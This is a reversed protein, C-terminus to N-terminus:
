VIKRVNFFKTLIWPGQAFGLSLQWAGVGLLRYETILKNKEAISRSDEFWVVHSQGTQDVYNFFPSQSEESYQIPVGHSIALEVANQNSIASALIDKDYPLKWDYGYLPIGLLIKNRKVNKLAFEITKRVQDIPAVPGPVSGMHHWDYAMILMFDVVSGIAGYDYGRLWSIDESTKPPIAITLLLEQRDLQDKLESLFTSFLDRDEALIREFDINVGAYGRTSVMNYINKILTQRSSPNNLMQHTLESSFGSTTLNTITVLPATDRRWATEIGELDNLQSLSGDDLFRYEFFSFYTAYPSFNQILDQDAQTGTIYIYGLTSATYDPMEPIVVEMGPELSTSALEPNADMLLGLSVYSIKAIKYLSDGLQVVYRNTDILLAQGPIINPTILGNVLRIMDISVEYKQSISYLSDGRKVVYVFM